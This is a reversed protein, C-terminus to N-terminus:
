QAFNESCLWVGKPDMRIEITSIIACSSWMFEVNSPSCNTSCSKLYTSSVKVALLCYSECVKTKDFNCPLQVIHSFKVGAISSMTTKPVYESLKVYNPQSTSALQRVLTAKPGSILRRYSIKLVNDSSNPHKQKPEFSCLLQVAQTSRLGDIRRWIISRTNLSRKVLKKYSFLGHEHNVGVSYATASGRETSLLHLQQNIRQCGPPVPMELAGGRQLVMSRFQHKEMKKMMCKVEYYKCDNKGSNISYDLISAVGLEGDDDVRKSIVLSTPQHHTLVCDPNKFDHKGSSKMSRKLLYDPMVYNKDSVPVHEDDMGLSAATFSREQTSLNRIQQNIMWCYIPIPTGGAGGGRRFVLGNSQFKKMKKTPGKSTSNGRSIPFDPISFVDLDGEGTDVPEWIVSSVHANHKFPSEDHADLHLIRVVACLKGFSDLNPIGNKSIEPPEKGEDSLQIYKMITASLSSWDRILDDIWFAKKNLRSIDDNVLSECLAAFVPDLKPAECLYLTFAGIFTRFSQPETRDGEYEAASQLLKRLVHLGIETRGPNGGSIYHHNGKFSLIKSKPHVMYQKQGHDSKLEFIGHKGYYGRLWGYRAEVVFVASYPGYKVAIHLTGSEPTTYVYRDAGLASKVNM